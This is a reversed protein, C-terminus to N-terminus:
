APKPESNNPTLELLHVDSSYATIAELLVEALPRDLGPQFTMGNLVREQFGGKPFLSNRVAQLQQLSTESKRKAAKLVKSELAEMSKTFRAREGEAAAKLSADFAGVQESFANWPAEVAGRLEGTTPPNLRSALEAELAHVPRFLASWSLGLKAQKRVTPTTLLVVAPRPYLLPYPVGMADFVGKLQLWYSLEGPGGCYALNPLIVEQYVPRLVVNPSFREPHSDLESELQEKSWVKSGDSLAIGTDTLTLRTRKEEQLYFLNIDRAHVQTKNGTEELSTNALAVAKQAVGGCEARMYPAFLAKLNPDDGDVILLGDKGYWHHVMRRTADALTGSAYFAACDGVLESLPGEMEQAASLLVAHAEKAPLRGVAGRAEGPWTITSPGVNVSAIEEFDHDESAMWFVPVVPIGTRSELEQASRIVAAIKVLFFLPGGALNLQHGTTITKTTEQSLKALAASADIGVHAYQTQLAEVLVARHAPDFLRNNAADTLREASALGNHLGTFREPNQVLESILKPWVKIDSPHLHHVTM